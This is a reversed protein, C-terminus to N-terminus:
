RVPGCWDPKTRGEYPTALMEALLLSAVDVGDVSVTALLRGWKERKPAAVVDVTRGTLLDRARAKARNGWALEEPCKAKWGTEPTDIHAVRVRDLRGDAFRVDYTDGDLVLTVVAPEAVATAACGVVIFLSLFTKFMCGLM